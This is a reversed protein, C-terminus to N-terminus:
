LELEEFAPSEAVGSGDWLQLLIEAASAITPRRLIFTPPLDVGLTSEIEGSLGVLAVSDLGYRLLSENADVQDIPVQLKEAVLRRLWDELSKRTKLPARPSDAAPSEASRSRAAVLAMPELRGSLYDERCAHRQIKGSTTKPITRPKLLAVVRVEIDHEAAVAERVKAVVEDLAARSEDVEAAIVLVEEDADTVSFAACCGPRIAPHATEATSEIDQPYHNRGRLIILDKLRGTVYLQGDDVFGLDGTRLYPGAGSPLHAGFVSHTEEQRNWYGHAVSDSRVWIEGVEGAACAVRREPDVIVMEEDLWPTGCSVLARGDAGARMQPHRGREPGAVFLTAEALGYCPYFAQRQFGSKSFAQCFREITTARVPEAGTFAVTWSTLDLNEREAATIKRVCLDYAFNPGGSTTARFHTVAKLWRLPRQLFALPSMLWCRAGAYLPQLVNGILGMDHYLPLWGLVRSQSSQGFALSIMRENHLLNAHTVQVGRPHGTSGSTYQLFAVQEGPPSYPQWGRSEDSPVRDTALWRLSRLEPAEACFLEALESIAGTTLVVCAGADAILRRLRPLTRDLRGPDPPYAPVAIVGAFLCGFFASIFELGPPYLLIARENRASTELLIAAIAQARRRLSAYTLVETEGDIEGTVLFTFLPEDGHEEVRQNLLEVISRAPEM